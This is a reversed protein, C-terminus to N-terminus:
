VAYVATVERHVSRSPEEVQVGRQLLGEGFSRAGEEAGTMAARLAGFLARGFGTGQAHESPSGPVRQRLSSEDLLVEVVGREADLRMPDGDRVYALLGGSLAEPTVHIAAPVKGSAGSMRGDTVLGVRYGRDQLMGLTPTLQHLEPMGNARPGQFRVVAIFDRELRGAQYADLLAEQTEFVLAPAEVVRHSPKVASVKIVARGLNGRLIRLGGEAAFPRSLPRLVQEDGSSASVEGWVLGEAGLAPVHTYRRLGFGAVTLVDEHLLGGALLERILFAMGGAAQFHNIDATGNPYVRALLPVVESLAEFDDWTLVIGAAAAIAVLHLTHNTSGGTALLGVVGNLVAREDVVAGIPTYSLGFGTLELARRAAARTLADRLPTNPPVFSAGPLHLGMLEMLLQNSNATGYFTCTGPAHYSQAEAELLEERGVKGEAHAQRIRGKEPNPLGSPMPGAPVFVVPLHGFSLAGILLGPVIKDCVGLLLAADFMDHSLAIATSMAIVDRSLLSLEMGVQGQTIGDCMAPVGGAFQAVAGLALAEAKILAPYRELPQHASLMDNYASVIGLNAQMGQRLRGKELPDHAAFGHALNCCALTSRRPARMDVGELRALYAQRTVRSRERLRATVAELVPHLKVTGGRETVGAEAGRAALDAQSAM